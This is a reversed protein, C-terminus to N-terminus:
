DWSLYTAPVSSNNICTSLFNPNHLFFAPFLCVNRSRSEQVLIYTYRIRMRSSLIGLCSLSFSILNLVRFFLLTFDNRSYMCTVYTSTCYGVVVCYTYKRVNTTTFPLVTKYGKKKEYYNKRQQSREGRGVFTMFLFQLYNKFFLSM